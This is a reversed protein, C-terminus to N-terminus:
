ETMTANMAGVSSTGRMAGFMAARPSSAYFEASGGIKASWMVSIVDAHTPTSTVTLRLSSRQCTENQMEAVANSFFETVDDSDAKENENM